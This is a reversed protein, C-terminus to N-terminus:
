LGRSREMESNSPDRLDEAFAPVGNRTVLVASTDTLLLVADFSRRELIPPLPALYQTAHSLHLAPGPSSDYAALWYKGASRYGPKNLSESKARITDNAATAWEKEVSDGAWGPGILRDSRALLDHIEQPTYQIAWPFLSRDLIANPFRKRAIAYAQALSPSVTETIEIGVVGAPCELLLDPRDGRVVTVPFELLDFKLAALLM